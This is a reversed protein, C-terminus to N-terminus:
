IHILSLDPDAQVALARLLEALFDPAEEAELGAEPWSRLVTLLVDGAAAMTMWLGLWRTGGTWKLPSDSRQWPVAHRLVQGMPTLRGSDPDHIGYTVGIRAARNATAPQAIGRAPGEQGTQEWWGNFRDRHSLLVEAVEEIGMRGDGISAAIVRLWGLQVQYRSAVQLFRM